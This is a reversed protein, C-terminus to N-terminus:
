CSNELEEVTALVINRYYQVVSKVKEETLEEFSVSIAFKDSFLLLPWYKYNALDSCHSVCNQKCIGEVSDYAKTTFLIRKQSTLVCWSLAVNTKCNYPIINSFYNKKLYFAWFFGINEELSSMKTEEVSERLWSLTLPSDENMLFPFHDEIIIKRLEVPLDFRFLILHFTIKRSPIIMIAEKKVQYLIKKLFIIGGSFVLLCM